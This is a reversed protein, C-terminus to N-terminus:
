STAQIIPWDRREAIRRMARPPMVIVPNGVAELLAMDKQHHAYCTAAQLSDGLEKLLDEAAALKTEGYILKIPPETLYLNGLYACRTGICHPIDLAKALQHLIFDPTKSILVLTDGAARHHDIVEWMEPRILEVLKRKAFGEAYVDVDARRMGGLWAKNYLKVQNGYTAFWAINFWFRQRRHRARVMHRREMFGYFLSEADLEPILTGDLNILVTAM